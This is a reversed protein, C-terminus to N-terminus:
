SSQSNNINSPFINISKNIEDFKKGIVDLSHHKLVFERSKKGIEELQEPRSILEKIKKKVNKFTCNIIPIENPKVLGALEYLDILDERLYCLVPKCSSMAELAFMAYWGVVLQDAIIDAEQIAKQIESNHKKELIILEIQFGEKKLDDVAKIFFNTGKITKHNPAHLIRIKKNEINKKIKPKWQETDISFHALMLTDWHYTYDVWDCGSIIHNAHKTWRNIQNAIKASTLRFLPYDAGLAYKYLLNKAKQMDQVDGGYPMAVVKVNALKLFFPELPKLFGKRTFALPGGHFYIYICKYRNIVYIFSLIKRLNWNIVYIFSLIKRLKWSILIKEFRKLLSYKKSFDIDFEQSIFFTSCVFTEAKYGYLELAKKHYVNNIMPEPGVGIDFPKKKMRAILCLIFLVFSSLISILLCLFINTYKLSYNKVNLYCPSCINKIKNSILQLNRYIRKAIAIFYYNLTKKKIINTRYSDKFSNIPKSEREKEM